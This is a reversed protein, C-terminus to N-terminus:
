DPPQRKFIAGKLVTEQHLNLVQELILKGFKNTIQLGEFDSMPSCVLTNVKPTKLCNGQFNNISSKNAPFRSKWASGRLFMRCTKQM